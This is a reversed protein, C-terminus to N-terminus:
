DVKISVTALLRSVPEEGHLEVLRLYVHWGRPDKDWTGRSIIDLSCCMCDRLRPIWFSVPHKDPDFNCNPCINKMQRSM